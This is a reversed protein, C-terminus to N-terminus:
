DFFVHVLLDGFRIEDGSNILFPQHAPLRANNLTTGNTSGLDFLVIGQKILQFTAHMRSVGKEAGLDSSLDLEPIVDVDQDSRGVRIQRNLELDFRRRSSPIVFMIRKGNHVPEAENVDVPSPTTSANFQAFPLVTTNLGADLLLNGCETCFLTGPMEKAGCDNCIIM